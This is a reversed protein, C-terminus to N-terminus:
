GIHLLKNRFTYHQVTVYTMSEFLQTYNNCTCTCTHRVDSGCVLVQDSEEVAVEFKQVADSDWEINNLREVYDVLNPQIVNEGNRYM